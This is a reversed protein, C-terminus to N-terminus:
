LLRSGRSIRQAQEPCERVIKERSTRELVYLSEERVLSKYIQRQRDLYVQQTFGSGDLFEIDFAYAAQSNGAEIRSVHTPIMNGSVDILDVIIERKGSDLMRKFIQDFCVDPIAASGPYHEKVEMQSGLRRVTMVGSGDLVIEVGGRGENSYMRSSYTFEELNNSCQFSTEHRRPNQGRMYLFSAGRVNMRASTGTDELVEMTFGVSQGASDKILYLAQQGQDNLFSSLGDRKISAAIEAGAELLPNDEFSLSNLIRNFIRRSLAPDSMVQHIEIDLQRGSPLEATGWFTTLLFDPREIRVWDFTLAEIQTQGTEAVEGDVESAKWAFRDQPAAAKAGWRYQCHAWATARDPRPMFISTLIYANDHYKWQQESLWGNGVPMSVSLGSYPLPIPDSLKIASKVAVTFRALLLALIFLGLLGIKDRGPRYMDRITSM